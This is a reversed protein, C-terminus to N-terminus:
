HLQKIQRDAESEGAETFLGWCALFLAAIVPGIVFGNIGFVAIGGISALLVIWDPMRTEKGVLIPRLINDVTGIVLAGWVALGIAQWTQGTALLYIAVPAWVLAGGVAPVLSLVATLVAWLLPSQIGLYWYALGGLAGQVVAVALTGKVTARIVTAFRSLLAQKQEDALPLAQRLSRALLAGDRLLFFLVYLMVFFSLLFDLTNQGVSLAQAAIFQSIRTASNAIREQWAAMDSLELRDLLTTLWPPAADLIQQFYAVFNMRGSRINLGLQTIERILSLGIMTLPLIVIVLGFLLTLLAALTPRGVMHHRMWRYVPSFLIAFAVSWLVTGSFPLLIWFFALTVAALLMLFFGRELQPTNM